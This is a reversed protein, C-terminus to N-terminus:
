AVLRPRDCTEEEKKQAALREAVFAMDALDKDDKVGVKMAQEKAKRAAEKAKGMFKGAHVCVPFMCVPKMRASVLDLLIKKLSKPNSPKRQRDGNHVLLSTSLQEKPRQSRKCGVPKM